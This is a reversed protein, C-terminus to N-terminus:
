VQWFFLFAFTLVNWAAHSYRLWKPMVAPDTKGKKMESVMFTSVCMELPVVVYGVYAKVMAGAMQAQITANILLGGWVIALVM